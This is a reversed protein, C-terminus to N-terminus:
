LFKVSSDPGLLPKLLSEVLTHYFALTFVILCAITHSAYKRMNMYTKFTLVMTKM